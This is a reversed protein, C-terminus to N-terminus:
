PRAKRTSLYHQAAVAVVQPGAVLATLRLQSGSLSPAAPAAPRPM